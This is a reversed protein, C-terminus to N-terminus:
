FHREFLGIVAPRRVITPWDEIYSNFKYSRTKERAERATVDDLYLSSFPAPSLLLLTLNATRLATHLNSEEPIHRWIIQYIHVLM